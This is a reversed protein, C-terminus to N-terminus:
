GKTGASKKISFILKNGKTVPGEISASVIEPMTASYIDRVEEVSLSSGPDPLVTANYHFERIMPTSTVAM